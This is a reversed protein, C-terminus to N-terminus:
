KEGIVRRELLVVDKGRKQLEYAISVGAIGGGVVVVDASVTGRLQPYQQSLALQGWVTRRLGATESATDSGHGTVPPESGSSAEQSPRLEAM